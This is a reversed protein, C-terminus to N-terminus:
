PTLIPLHLSVQLLSPWAYVPSRYGCHLCYTFPLSQKGGSLVAPAVPLEVEWPSLFVKPNKSKEEDATVDM